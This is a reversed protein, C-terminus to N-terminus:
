CKFFIKNELNNSGKKLSKIPLIFKLSEANFVTEIKTIYIVKWVYTPNKQLEKKLLLLDRYLSFHIIYM